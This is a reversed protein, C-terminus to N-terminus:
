NMEWRSPNIGPARDPMNDPKNAGEYNWIRTNRDAMLKRVAPSVQALKDEDWADVERDPGAWSPRYAIGLMERAYTGVNPYNGHFVNQNILVASGATCPVMVQEPHNEYRLYPNAENHFSLHSRPVVKFPSVEPTLEDLYYLVRVLRPCSQEHGFIKTGWPQGDSHLSIGPHGPESRAVGMHMLVIDPGFLEKLFTITPSHALLRIMAPGEFPENMSGKQHPSYDAPRFTVTDDIEQKLQTILEPTLLDPLVLYGEVELQKIREGPTLASWDRDDVRPPHTTTATATSM